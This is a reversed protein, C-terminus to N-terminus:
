GFVGKQGCLRFPEHLRDAGINNQCSLYREFRSVPVIATLIGDCFDAKYVFRPDGERVELYMTRYRDSTIATLIRSLHLRPCVGRVGLMKLFKNIASVADSALKYTQADSCNAPRRMSCNTSSRHGVDSGCHGSSVGTAVCSRRPTMKQFISRPSFVGHVVVRPARPVFIDFLNYVESRITNGLVGFWAGLVRVDNLEELGFTSKRRPVLPRQEWDILDRLTAYMDWPSLIKHANEAVVGQVEPGFSKPVFAGLFPSMHDCLDTPKGHDGMVVVVSSAFSRKDLVRKLHTTLVGQNQALDLVTAHSAELHTMILTQRDEYVKQFAENARLLTETYTMGGMCYAERCSHLLHTRIRIAEELGRNTCLGGPTYHDVDEPLVMTPLPMRCSSILSVFGKDKARRFIRRHPKICKRLHEHRDFGTTQRTRNCQNRPVGGNLVPGLNHLTGAPGLTHYKRFVHGIHNRHECNFLARLDPAFKQVVDRSTSDLIIFYISPGRAPGQRLPHATFNRRTRLLLWGLSLPVPRILEVQVAEYGQPFVEALSINEKAAMRLRFPTVDTVSFTKPLRWLELVVESNAVLVWDGTARPGPWEVSYLERRDVPCLPVVRKFSLENESSDLNADCINERAHKFSVIRLLLIALCQWRAHM